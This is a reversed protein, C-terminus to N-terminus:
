KAFRAWAVLALFFALAGWPAVALLYGLTACSLVALGGARWQRRRAAKPTPALERLTEWARYTRDTM